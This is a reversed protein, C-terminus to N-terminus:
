VPVLTLWETPVFTGRGYFEAWLNCVPARPPSIRYRYGALAAGAGSHETRAAFSYSTHDLKLTSMM